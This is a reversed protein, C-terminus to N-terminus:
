AAIVGDRPKLLVFKHTSEPHIIGRQLMHRLYSVRHTGEILHFPRGYVLWGDDKLLSSDIVVPPFPPTLDKSMAQYILYDQNKREFEDYQTGWWDMVENKFFRINDDAQQASWSELTLEYDELRLDPYHENFHRFHDYVVQRFFQQTAEDEPLALRERYQEWSEKDWTEFGIPKISDELM